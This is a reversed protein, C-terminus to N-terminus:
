GQTNVLGEVIQYLRYMLTAAQERTLLDAWAYNPQGTEDLGTGQILGSSISWDRAEESWSGADNDKLENRMELWLEKFKAVDMDEDELENMKNYVEQRFRDMNWDMRLQRWLHDPDAHGSAIGRLYGEYHSVIVGDELPNLGHFKCLDAFLKVANWTVKEVFACSAEWDRVEFTAGSVYKITDPECMEVGIHTRNVSGNKGGGGHGGGMSYGPTEMIPLTIITEEAGVIGHISSYTYNPQNWVNVFVRPDPQSCGVSHLVLGKVPIQWSPNYKPNQTIYSTIYSM